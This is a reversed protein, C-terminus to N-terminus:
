LIRARWDRESLLVQEGDEGHRTEWDAPIEADVVVFLEPPYLYPQGDDNMIRYYDAEIGIVRYENHPNLDKYDVLSPNETNLRIKM